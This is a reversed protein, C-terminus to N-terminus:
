YIIKLQNEISKHYNPIYIKTSIVLIKDKNLMNNNIRIM